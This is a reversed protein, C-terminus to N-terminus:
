VADHEALPQSFRDVLMALRQLAAQTDALECLEQGV